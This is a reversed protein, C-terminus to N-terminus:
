VFSPRENDEKGSRWWGTHTVTGEGGQSGYSPSSGTAAKHHSSSGVGPFARHGQWLGKLHSGYAGPEFCASHGEGHNQFGLLTSSTWSGAHLALGAPLVPGPTNAGVREFRQTFRRGQRAGRPSRPGLSSTSSWRYFRGDSPATSEALAVKM